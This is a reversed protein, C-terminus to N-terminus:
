IKPTDIQVIGVGNRYDLAHGAARSQDHPPIAFTVGDITLIDKERTYSKPLAWIGWHELPKGNTFSTHSGLCVIFDSHEHPIRAEADRLIDLLADTIAVGFPLQHM